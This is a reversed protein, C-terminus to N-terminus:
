GRVTQVGVVRGTQDRVVQKPAAVIQALQALAAQTQANAQEIAALIDSPKPQRPASAPNRIATVPEDPVDGDPVGEIESIRSDLQELAVQMEPVRAEQSSISQIANAQEIALQVELKARTAMMDLMIEQQKLQLEREKIAMTMQRDEASAAQQAQM